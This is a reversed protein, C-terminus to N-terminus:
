CRRILTTPVHTPTRWSKSSTLERKQACPYANCVVVHTAAALICLDRDCERFQRYTVGSLGQSVKDCVRFLVDRNFHQAVEKCLGDSAESSTKRHRGETGRHFPPPAAISVVGGRNVCNM